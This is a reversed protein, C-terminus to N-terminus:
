MESEVIPEACDWGYIFKTNYLMIMRGTEDKWFIIPHQSLFEKYTLPKDQESKEYYPFYDENYLKKLNAHETNAYEYIPENTGTHYGTIKLDNKNVSITRLGIADGCADYGYNYNYTNKINGNWTIPYPADKSLSQAALSPIYKIPILLHEKTELLYKNTDSKDVYVPIEGYKDFIDTNIDMPDYQEWPFVHPEYYARFYFGKNTKFYGPNETNEMIKDPLLSNSLSIEYETHQFNPNNEELSYIDLAYNQGIPFSYIKSYDNNALIHGFSTIYINSISYYKKTKVLFYKLGNLEKTNPNTKTVVGMEEIECNTCLGPIQVVKGQNYFDVNIYVYNTQIDQDTTENESNPLSKQFFNFYNEKKLFIGIISIILLAILLIVLKSSKSSTNFKRKKKKAETDTSINNASEIEKKNTEM